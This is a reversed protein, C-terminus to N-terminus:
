FAAQWGGCIARASAGARQRAYRRSQLVIAVLIAIIAINVLLEILTFGPHLTYPTPHLFRTERKRDEKRGKKGEERYKITAAHVEM